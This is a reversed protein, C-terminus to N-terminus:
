CFLRSMQLPRNIAGLASKDARIPMLRLYPFSFVLSRFHYVLSFSGLDLVVLLFIMLLIGCIAPAISRTNLVPHAYSKQLRFSLITSDAAPFFEGLFAFSLLPHSFLKIPAPVLQGLFHQASHTVPPYLVRHGRESFNLLLQVLAHCPHSCSQQFVQCHRARRSRHPSTLGFIRLTARRTFSHQLSSPLLYALQRRLAVLRHMELATIAVTGGTLHAKKGRSSCNSSRGLTANVGRSSSLMARNPVHIGYRRALRSTANKVPTCTHSAVTRCTVSCAPAACTLSCASCTAVM